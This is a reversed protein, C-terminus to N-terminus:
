PAKADATVLNLTRLQGSDIEAVPSRARVIGFRDRLMLGLMGNFGQNVADNQEVEVQAVWVPCRPTAENLPDSLVRVSRDVMPAVVVECPLQMAGMGRFEARIAYRRTNATPSLEVVRSDVQVSYRPALADRVVKPPRWRFIYKPSDQLGFKVFIDVMSEESPNLGSWATWFLRPVEFSLELGSQPSAPIKASRRKVQVLNWMSPEADHGTPAFGILLKEPVKQNKPSELRYSANVHFLADNGKPDPAEVSFTWPHAASEQAFGTFANLEPDKTRWRKMISASERERVEPLFRRYNRALSWIGYRSSEAFRIFELAVRVYSDDDTSTLHDTNEYNPYTFNLQGLFGLESLDDSTSSWVWDVSGVNSHGSGSVENTEKDASSSKARSPNDLHFILDSERRRESSGAAWILKDKIQVLRVGVDPDVGTNQISNGSPTFYHAITLKLAGAGAIEFLSQVSGKGFSREGIILARRADKLAGAVIESASASSSNILVILPLNILQNVSAYETQVDYRSKTVLIKGEALFLDAVQVAQDLLGGPNGRLDLVMARLSGSRRRLANMYVDYIEQSTRSSFSTVRVHLVDPSGSITREEVSSAQVEDRSIFSQYVRSSRPRYFWAAVPGIRTSSRILSLAPELGYFAVNSKGLRLLVDNPEIGAMQAPSNPVIERVFPMGHFENIVVGVGGFQGRTGGRLDDYEAPSLFSSHPDLSELLDNIALRFVRQQRDGLVETSWQLFSAMLFAFRSDTMGRSHAAFDVGLGYQAGAGGKWTFRVVAARGCMPDDQEPSSRFGQIFVRKDEDLVWGELSGFASSAKAFESSIRDFVKRFLLCELIRKPEVYNQEIVRVTQLAARFVQGDQNPPLVGAFNEQLSPSTSPVSSLSVASLVPDSSGDLVKAKLIFWGGASLTLLLLGQISKSWYKHTRGSDM